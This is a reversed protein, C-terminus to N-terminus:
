KETMKLNTKCKTYIESLMDHKIRRPFDELIKLDKKM